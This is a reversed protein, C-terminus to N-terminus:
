KKKSKKKEKPKEKKLEAKEEKPDEKNEQPQAQISQELNAQPKKFLHPAVEYLKKLIINRDMTTKKVIADYDHLRAIIKNGLENLEFNAIKFDSPSIIEIHSPMYTFIVGFYNELSDFEVTAEAFTTFLDKAEKIEKPEHVTKSIVKVGKESGLKEILTTIAQKVHEAPRGMIEMLINAQIKGM